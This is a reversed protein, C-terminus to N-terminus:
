ENQYSADAKVNSDQFGDQLLVQERLVDRACGAVSEM